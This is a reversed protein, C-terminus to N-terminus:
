VMPLSGTERLFYEELALSIVQSISLNDSVAREELKNGLESPMVLEVRKVGEESFVVLYTCTELDVRVDIIANYDGWGRVGAEVLEYGTSEIWAIDEASATDGVSLIFGKQYRAPLASVLRQM